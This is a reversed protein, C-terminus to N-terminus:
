NASRVEITRIEITFSDWANKRELKDTHLHLNLLLPAHSVSRFVRATLCAGLAAQLDVVNSLFADERYVNRFDFM